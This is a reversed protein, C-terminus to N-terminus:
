HRAFNADTVCCRENSPPAAHLIETLAEDFFEVILTEDANSGKFPRRGIDKLCHRRVVVLRMKQIPDGTLLLVRHVSSAFEEAAKTAEISKIPEM